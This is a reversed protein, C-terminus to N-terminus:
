ITKKVLAIIYNARQSEKEIVLQAKDAIEPSIDQDPAKESKPVLITSGAKVLMSAPIMNVERIFEPKHGLKHALSEFKKLKAVTYTSWSSLPGQWKSLNEKFLAANDTPLLIKTDSNGTIVPRNFQPNLATFEDM